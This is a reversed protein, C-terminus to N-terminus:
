RLRPVRTASYDAAPRAAPVSPVAGGKPQDAARHEAAAALIVPVAVAALGGGLRMALPVPSAPLREHFLWSGVVVLYGISMVLSVPMVISARGRQLAVQFLCMGVATAGLLVYLYPSTVAAALDSGARAGAAAGTGTGTVTGTVTASGQHASFVAASLAKMALGAYGYVLGACFGYAVSAAHLRGARSIRTRRHAGPGRRRGEAWASARYAWSYGAAVILAVPVAALAVLGAVAHTGAGNGHGASLALLLVAVAIVAICTLETRGLREHLMLWSFLITVVIGCAQLPQAVTLPELSLVVVQLALGCCILAFGALWAPATFLTRVLGLVRHAEIRPLRDLARKECIFGLNYIVTATVALIIGPHVTM